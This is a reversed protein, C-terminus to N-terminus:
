PRQLARKLERGRPASGLVRPAGEFGVDELRRLLSHVAPTRGGATRRVTDAVPVVSTM